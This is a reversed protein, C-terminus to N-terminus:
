RQVRAWAWGAPSTGSTRAWPSHRPPSSGAVAGHSCCRCFRASIDFPMLSLSFGRATVEVARVGELDDVAAIRDLSLVVDGTREALQALPSDDGLSTLRDQLTQLAGGLEEVASGVPRGLEPLSYRAPRPPLAASLRQSAQEVVRAATAINAVLAGADSEPSIHTLQTAIESHADKLLNEIRRSSVSAGFFQTALDPIQHAEDLIVADATGLIDGFGDEKLALDALLLHHNVIVIDADLAERRAVAVHCRSIEPCRNGLCNERTSTVQPWVPHSDSLGRVEALDGRRTTRAWRQIRGLM